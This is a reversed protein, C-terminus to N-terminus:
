RKYRGMLESKALTHGKMAAMLDMKTTSPKLTLETDLAYLRFYYRHDSGRPPHPGNYGTKKFDTTGQKMGTDLEPKQPIGEPLSRAAAPIGWAVWHVWIGAPADPDDCILAFCKTGEPPDAWALAPSVDPGDGTYEQPIYAGAQFASSTLKLDPVPNGQPAKRTTRSGPVSDRRQHRPNPNPRHPIKSSENESLRRTTQPRYPRYPRYPCKGSVAKVFQSFPSNTDVTPCIPGRTPRIGNVHV